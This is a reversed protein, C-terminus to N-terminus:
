FINGQLSPHEFSMPVLMVVIAIMGFIIGNALQKIIQHKRFTRFIRVYAFGMVILLSANSLLNKFYEM